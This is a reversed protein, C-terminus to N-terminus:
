SMFYQRRMEGILHKTKADLPCHISVFDSEKLLTQLDVISIGSEDTGPGGRSSVLVKMGLALAIKAVCGGITGRGGILGLTKGGLEFNPLAGLTRWGLADGLAVKRQLQCM